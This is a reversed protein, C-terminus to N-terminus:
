QENGGVAFERREEARLRRALTQMSEGSDGPKGLREWAAQFETPSLRDPNPDVDNNM